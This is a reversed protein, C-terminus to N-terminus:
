PAASWRAAAQEAQHGSFVAAAPAAQRLEALLSDLPQDTTDVLLWAAIDAARLADCVAATWRPPVHTPSVRLVALRLGVRRLAAPEGPFSPTDLELSWVLRTPRPLCDALATGQEHTLGAQLRLRARPAQAAARLLWGALVEARRDAVPLLLDPDAPRRRYCALPWAALDFDEAEPLTRRLSPYPPAADVEDVLASDLPGLAILRVAPLLARLARACDAAAPHAPGALIAVTQPAASVLRALAEPWWLREAAADVVVADAPTAVLLESELPAPEPRATTAAPTATGFVAPPVLVVLVARRSPRTGALASLAVADWFDRGLNTLAQNTGVAIRAVVSQDAERLDDPLLLQTRYTQTAAYVRGVEPALYTDLPPAITLRRALDACLRSAIDDRTGASVIAALLGLYAAVQTPESHDPALGELAQRCAAQLTVYLRQRCGNTWEDLLAERVRQFDVAGPEMM